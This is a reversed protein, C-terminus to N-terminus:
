AVTGSTSSTSSGSSSTNSTNNVYGLEANIAQLLYPYEELTANVQNFEQTLQQQQAALQTQFESIQTSLSSQQSANQALDENLVGTVPNSLNTLDQAFNSGFSGSSTSQFFSQVASPNAALVQALTQGSPTTGVTLTGDNNMNIGLSALSAIGTNGSMAFTVDSMLSSQLMSLSSDSGLPGQKGTSAHVSFQSNLDGIVTKYASGFANIAQTAQTTDPGVAVQVPTASDASLLNLTVGPIAGTVTNTTSSFPIGDVTFSADTGGVPAVFNLSTPTNAIINGNADSTTNSVIALAGATGTAQSTISLRAGSADTLVAATVGWNNAASQQNIYSALTSITDNSGQTIPIDFTTGSTGGVQLKLDGTAAGSPLISTTASALPDTYVTGSSALASVVVTHTAAAATSDATATVIAPWSSTATMASLPGTVDTLSNVATVLNNLDNNISTLDSSQTQLTAQEQQWVQLEGSQQAQIQSVVSTVNIGSGNLLTSPNFTIGM